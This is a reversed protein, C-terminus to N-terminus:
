RGSITSLIQQANELRIRYGFFTLAPLYENVPHSNQFQVEMMQNPLLMMPRPLMTPFRPNGIHGMAIPEKGFFQRQSSSDRLTFSLGPARGVLGDNNPDLYNWPVANTQYVTKAIAMVIFAAELTVAFQSQLTENPGIGTSDLSDTTFWFPWIVRNIEGVNGPALPGLSEFLNRELDRADDTMLQDQQLQSELQKLNREKSEVIRKINEWRQRKEELERCKQEYNM